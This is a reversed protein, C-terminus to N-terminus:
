WRLDSRKKDYLDEENNNLFSDQRSCLYNLYREQRVAKENEAMDTLYEMTQDSMEFLRKDFEIIKPNVRYAMENIGLLKIGDLSRVRSLAVYGMGMEFSKSLDIEAADLSMGQSKHVTIAWALRLPVQKIVALVEGDEEIVWPEPSAIIEQGSKVRVIPYGSEDDFGIIKGLTGNIYGFEFNNKIFMVIAGEKLILKERFQSGKKLETLLKATGSSQMEFIHETGKLEKLYYDNLSDVNVNHTFLKTACINEALPQNFRTLMIEHTSSNANGSRIDSLVKLFNKDTQRHQESLYCVKLDLSQWSKSFISFEVSSGGDRIPPLQFFDGCLIVQLGGFANHNKRIRQCIQEIADLRKADLMSIEDIVLVRAQTMRDRVKKKKAITNLDKATLIDKIGIGSWSHITHGNIHSAAIGTSATIGVAVHLGKLYKIYQNLLYTKGSGASGTLYVNHGMKLIELAQSQTM